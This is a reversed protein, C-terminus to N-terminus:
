RKKPLGLKARVDAAAARAANVAPQAGERAQQAVEHAQRKIDEYPGEPPNELLELIEAGMERRVRRAEEFFMRELDAKDPRQDLGGVHMAPDSLTGDEHRLFTATFYQGEIDIRVNVKTRDSSLQPEHVKTGMSGDAM